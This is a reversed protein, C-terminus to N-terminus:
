QLSGATEPLSSTASPKGRIALRMLLVPATLKEIRNTSKESAGAVLVGAAKMSKSSGAVAYKASIDYPAIAGAKRGRSRVSRMDCGDVAYENAVKSECLCYRTSAEDNPAAAPQSKEVDSEITTIAVGGAKL